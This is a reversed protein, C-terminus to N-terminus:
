YPVNPSKSGCRNLSVVTNNNTPYIPQFILAGPGPKNGAEVLDLMDTMLGCTCSDPNDSEARMPSCDIITDLAEGRTKQFHSNILLIPHNGAPHHIVPAFIKHPSGYDTTGDTEHYRNDTTGLSPDVGWVGKGFSSIATGNPFPPNRKNEYFDYIFNEFDALQEPTVLPALGMDRGDSTDIVNTAITEFGPITIFPWVDADPSMQAVISAMSITGLRKRRASGRAALLARKAYSEFQQEALKNETGTLVYWACAGLATAVSVLCLLFLTRGVWVARSPGAGKVLPAGTNLNSGSSAVTSTGDKFPQM